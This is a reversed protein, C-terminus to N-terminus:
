AIAGVNRTCPSECGRGAGGCLWRVVVVGVCLVQESQKKKKKKKKKKKESM